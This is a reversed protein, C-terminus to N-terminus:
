PFPYNDDDTLLAHMPNGPTYEWNFINYQQQLNELLLNWGEVSNRQNQRGTADVSLMECMSVSSPLGFIVGIIRAFDEISSRSGVFTQALVYGFTVIYHTNPNHTMLLRHRFTDLDYDYHLGPYDPITQMLRERVEAALHIMESNHDYGYLKIREYEIGNETAWDLFAWSFLGSGCGIDIHAVRGTGIHKNPRLPDLDRLAEIYRDYRYHPHRYLPTTSQIEDEDVGVVYWATNQVVERFDTYALVEHSPRQLPEGIEYDSMIERMAGRYHSRIRPSPQRNSSVM